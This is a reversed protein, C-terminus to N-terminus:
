PQQGLNPPQKVEYVVFRPDSDKYAPGLWGPRLKQAQELLEALPKEESFGPMPTQILYRVKYASLLRELETATGLKPGDDGYFLATPRASFPRIARRDTYLYIMTDLGSAMVDEPHSHDKIWAFVREYAAWPANRNFIGNAPYGTGSNVAAHQSLLWLNSGICLTLLISALFRLGTGQAARPLLLKLGKFFYVLFFPLLPLIFRLPPWPWFVIVLGYAVLFWPLFRTRRLHNCVMILAMLGTFIRVGTKLWLNGQSLLQESGPLGLSTISSAIMFLNWLLVRLISGLGFSSWWGLYDTYYMAGPDSQTGPLHFLVWLVWPLAGLASGLAVWLLPRGRRWLVFLAAPIVAAGVTRCLFPLALLVGLLIQHGPKAWPRELHSELPWLGLLLLCVFPLETLAQTSFYLFYASTAFLLCSAAAVLRGCYGFRLLFLFAGAVATAGSALSLMQMALLNQPFSPWIKWILALVAPYLFPYKTQVPAQPLNILRYGEGQALAKATALYVGDDHYTGGVGITMQWSGLGLVIVALLAAMLVDHRNLPSSKDPVVDSQL